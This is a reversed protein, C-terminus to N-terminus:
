MKLELVIDIDYHRFVPVDISIAVNLLYLLTFIYV